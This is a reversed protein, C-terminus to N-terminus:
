FALIDFISSFHSVDLGEPSVNARKQACDADLSYFTPGEPGGVLQWVHWLDLCAAVDELFRGTQGPPMRGM